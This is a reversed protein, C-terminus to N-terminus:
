RFRHFRLSRASLLVLRHLWSFMFITVWMVNPAVDLLMEAIRNPMKSEIFYDVIVMTGFIMMLVNWDIAGFVQNYPLIGLVIFIAATSLAVIARRKPLAIMLIYMVVFLIIAITKM